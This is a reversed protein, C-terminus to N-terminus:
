NEEKVAPLVNMVNDVLILKEPYKKFMTSEVVSFPLVRADDPINSPTGRGTTIIVYRLNRKLYSIFKAVEDKSEHNPLLKDIIGMHIIVIENNLLPSKAPFSEGTKYNNFLDIIDESTDCMTSIGIHAFTLEVDDHDQIFKNMREDIILIRQLGTEILSSLFRYGSAADKEINNALSKMANLYSQSGSLPELYLKDQNKLLKKYAEDKERKEDKPVFEYHRLFALCVKGDSHRQNDNKTFLLSIGAKVWYLPADWSNPSKAMSFNEPLTVIKEEYKSLFSDVQTLITNELFNSFGYLNPSLDKNPYSVLCKIMTGNTANFYWNNIQKALMSTVDRGYEILQNIPLVPRPRMKLIYNWAEIVIPDDKCQALYSRLAANLTNELVFRMFDPTKFLGKGSGEPSDEAVDIVVPLFGKDNSINRGSNKVIDKLHLVWRCYVIKLLEEAKKKASNLDSINKLISYIKSIIADEKSMEPFLIIGQNSINKVEGECIIRFPLKLANVDMIGDFNELLVYSFPLSREKAAEEKSMIWIGYQQLWQIKEDFGEVQKETLILLEKPKYVDFRFGLCGEDNDKLDDKNSCVLVPSILDHCAQPGDLGGITGMKAGKLYGASIRMEAFGWNEKQLQGNESIFKRGMKESLDECLKKSIKGDTWVIFEIVGAKPNDKFDIYVDLNKETKDSLKSWYHKAANRIVNEIITFLAHRGVDGNPIALEIDKELHAEWKGDKEFGEDGLYLIFSNDVCDNGVYYRKPVTDDSLLKMDKLRRAHIRITQPQESDCGITSNQFQYAKLGESRAIYNLLHKQSLFEKVVGNVCFTPQRWSPFETTATAIYDMRHQIYQYLVRDDPMTGVNHSLASLVHSGINHSGNRSMISGIASKLNALRLKKEKKTNFYSTLLQRTATSLTQIVPFSLKKKVRLLLAGQDRNAEVSCPIIYIYEYNQALKIFNKKLQPFNPNETWNLKIFSNNSLIERTKTAFLSHAKFGKNCLWQAITIKEENENNIVWLRNTSNDPFDEESLNIQLIDKKFNSDSVYYRMLCLLYKIANDNEEFSNQNLNLINKNEVSYFDVKSNNSVDTSKILQNIINSVDNFISQCIIKFTLDNSGQLKEILDATKQNIQLLLTSMETMGIKTEDPSYVAEDYNLIPDFYTDSILNYFDNRKFLSLPLTLNGNESFNLVGLSSQHTRCQEWKINNTIIHKLYSLIAYILNKYFDSLDFANIGTFFISGEKFPIKENTPNFKFKFAQLAVNSLVYGSYKYKILKKILDVHGIDAYGSIFIFDSDCLKKAKEDPVNQGFKWKIIDEDYKMIGYQDCIVNRFMKCHELPARADLAVTKVLPLSKNKKITLLWNLLVIIEYEQTFWFKIHKTEKGRDFNMGTLVTAVPISEDLEQKEFLDFLISSVDDGFTLVYDIHNRCNVFEKYAKSVLPCNLDNISNWELAVNSLMFNFEDRLSHLIDGNFIHWMYHPLILGIIIKNKM